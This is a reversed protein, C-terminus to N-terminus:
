NPAIRYIRGAADDSVYLAGDPGVAVGVPRGNVTHDDVVLGTMFDEYDGVPRGNEFHVRVVKSGTRHERNWSGHLAVFADGTYEAPFAHDAGAPPVYFAFSLPASHSGFLVDPMSVKGALDAREGAHRPDQHNGLYYWPWGFFQGAQVRTFYDPVLNDGLGDRENTACFLEDSGPRIGLGVCNRIGTAFTRMHSGDADFALMDARGEQGDWSAGMGHTAEWAAVGGAPEKAMGEAVNDASGVSAYLTKGDPSFVIDRTTHGGGPPLDAIKQPQGVDPWAFRVIAGINAVYMVQPQGPPFAIGFPRDLGEALTQRESSLQGSNNHFVSIRGRGTEVVYLDGNPATRLLRPGDLGEAFVSVTFGDPVKPLAGTPPSQYGPGNGASPTAFPQPLDQVDVRHHVGPADLTWDLGTAPQHTEATGQATDGGTLSALYAVVDKRAKADDIKVPMQTGPVAKQPDALFTDLEDKTWVKGAAGAAKMVASYDYNASGAKRGVVGFLPPGQFNAKAASDDHCLSCNARFYAQGAAVDQARTCAPLSVALFFAALVLGLRQMMM